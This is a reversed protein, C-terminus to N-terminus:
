SSDPIDGRGIPTSLPHLQIFLHLQHLSGRPLCVAVAVPEGQGHPERYITFSPNLSCNVVEAMGVEGKAHKTADSAGVKM